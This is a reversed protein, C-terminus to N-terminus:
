FLDHVLFFSILLPALDYIFFPLLLPVSGFGHFVLFFWRTTGAVTVAVVEWVLGSDWQFAPSRAPFGRRDDVGFWGSVM